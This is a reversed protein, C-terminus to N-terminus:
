ERRLAMIPDVKTARRAPLYCAALAVLCLLFVVTVLTLFDASSVGFLLSRLFRALTLALVLGLSLGAATLQLGQGLVLRRIDQAQAGVAMRIGIERTRQRTTYAVVAYIGVAALILALLGFTGASTGAIRSNVSVAQVHDHLTSVDFVPLDPNLQHITKEVLPALAMPDGAVRAHIVLGNAYAQFLPLFFFPQNSERLDQYSSNRAVGVVTYSQDYVRIAKGIANQRPWYREAMAQNVIAVLQANRKDERAFDRGALLPIQMTRLYNPGVIMNPLELSEHRQATYGEPQVPNARNYFGLPIWDSLTASQVGPLAELKDLLQRNFEWGKEQDYGQSFLEYSTLLVHDPNFGPDFGREKEFSRIFLGACFLLLASLALQVVVLVNPLRAKRLGASTSGSEEKLVAVPTLQSARLAPLIGFVLGTLLSILLTAAMVTRDAHVVLSLPLNSPPFFRSLVGASWATLVM